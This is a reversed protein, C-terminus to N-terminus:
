LDGSTERAACIEDKALYLLALSQELSEVQKALFEKKAVEYEVCEGGGMSSWLEYLTGSAIGAQCLPLMAKSERQTPVWETATPLQAIRNELGSITEETLWCLKELVTQTQSQVAQGCEISTGSAIDLLTAPDAMVKNWLRLREFQVGSLSNLSSVLSGEEERQQDAQDAQNGQEALSALYPMLQPDREWELLIGTRNEKDWTDDAFRFMYKTLKKKIREKEMIDNHSATRTTTSAKGKVGRMETFSTSPSLDVNTEGKTIELYMDVATLLRTARRLYEEDSLATIQQASSSSFHRGRRDGGSSISTLSLKRALSSMMPLTLSSSSWSKRSIKTFRSFPGSRISTPSGSLTADDSEGAGETEQGPASDRRTARPDPGFSVTRRTLTPSSGGTPSTAADPTTSMNISNSSAM